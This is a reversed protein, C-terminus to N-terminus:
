NKKKKGKKKKSISFKAFNLGIIKLKTFINVVGLVLLDEKRYLVRFGVL